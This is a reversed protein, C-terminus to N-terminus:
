FYKLVDIESVWVEKLKLSDMVQFSKLIKLTKNDRIKIYVSQTEDNTENSADLEVTVNRIKIQKTEATM